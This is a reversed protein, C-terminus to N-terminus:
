GHNGGLDHVLWKFPKLLEVECAWWEEKIDRVKDYMPHIYWSEMQKPDLALIGRTRRSVLAYAEPMCDRGENSRTTEILVVGRKQPWSYPLDSFSHALSKVEVELSRKVGPIRVLVDPETLWNGANKISDRFRPHTKAQADVGYTRLREAVVKEWEWGMFLLHKFLADNEGWSQQKQM